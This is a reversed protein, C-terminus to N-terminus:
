VENFLKRIDDFDIRGNTNFDFLLPNPQNSEIWELYKFFQVVDDFDMRGNANIDEYLGDGDPDTPLHTQDPFPIVSSELKVSEVIPNFGFKEAHIILQTTNGLRFEIVGNESTKFTYGNVVVNAGEVGGGVDTKVTITTINCDTETEVLLSSQKEVIFLTEGEIVHYGEAIPTAKVIYTGNHVPTFSTSSTINGSPTITNM